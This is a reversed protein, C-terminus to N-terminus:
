QNSIMRNTDRVRKKRVECYRVRQEITFLRESENCVDNIMHCTGLSVCAPTRACLNARIYRIFDGSASSDGSCSFAFTLFYLFYTEGGFLHHMIDSDRM